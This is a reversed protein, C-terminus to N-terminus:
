VLHNSCMVIVSHLTENYKAVGHFRKIYSYICYGVKYYLYKRDASLTNHRTKCQTETNSM